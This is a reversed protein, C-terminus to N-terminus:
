TLVTILISVIISVAAITVGWKTMSKNFQDNSFDKWDELQQIRNDHDNTCAHIKGVSEDIKELKEKIWGLDNKVVAVDISNSKKMGIGSTWVM